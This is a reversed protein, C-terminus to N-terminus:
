PPSFQFESSKIKRTEEKEATDTFELDLDFLSSFMSSSFAASQSGTVQGGGSVGVSDISNKALDHLREATSSEFARQLVFSAVSGTSFGGNTPPVARSVEKSCSETHAETKGNKM